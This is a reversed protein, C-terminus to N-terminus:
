VYICNLGGCVNGSYVFDVKVISCLKFIVNICVLFIVVCM